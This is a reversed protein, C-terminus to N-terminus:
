SFPAFAAARCDNRSMFDNCVAKLDICDSRERHCHLLAVHNLRKQTQTSRLYTKLRRLCSFSREATCSTVPMTLFLRILQMVEPLMDQWAENAKVIQVVDGICNATLPPNASRCMDALMALHLKLRSENLDDGFHASVSAMDAEDPAATGNITEIIVSEVSRAIVFAPNKFRSSLCSLAADLAMFYIRRYFDEATQDQHEAAGQDIRRSPKRQSRLVPQDVGISDAEATAATWTQKFSEDDRQNIWVASLANVKSHAKALSLTPSQLSKALSESKAFVVYLLKLAFFMSFTQLQRLYGSSKYGIDGRENDSMDALFHLLESYNRLVSEISSIRMTWRTPCLPRLSQADRELFTSFWALRKPSDRVFNILDKIQNMADRCQPIHSVADQFALSLSHNMCHVYVAKPQVDCIRRQLGSVSGSMNSAGDFCQGRCNDLSMDFRTLVDQTINFLTGADTADTEYFGVFTEQVDLDVTVYRFCIAVQEKVSTDTTEDMIISFHKAESIDHKHARLLAHAMDQILENQISPSTWKYSSRDLWSKLAESDEARLRLLNDFNSTVDSHGRVALGQKCLYHLSTVIKYLATRAVERDREHAVSLLGAVNTGKTRHAMKLVAEQHCKSVDHKALKSLANKWNDYGDNIFASDRKTAFNFLGM